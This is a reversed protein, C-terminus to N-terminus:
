PTQPSALRRKKASPKGTEAAMRDLHRPCLGGPLCQLKALEHWDLSSILIIM